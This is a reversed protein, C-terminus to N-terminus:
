NKEPSRVIKDLEDLGCIKTFTASCFVGNHNIYLTMNKRNPYHSSPNKLYVDLAGYRSPNLDIQEGSKPIPVDQGLINITDM